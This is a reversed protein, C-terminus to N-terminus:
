FCKAGSRIPDVASTMQVLFKFLKMLPITMKFFFNLFCRACLLLTPHLLTHMFYNRVKQVIISCTKLREKQQFIITELYLFLKLKKNFIICLLCTRSTMALADFIMVDITITRKMLLPLLSRHKGYFSQSLAIAGIVAIQM